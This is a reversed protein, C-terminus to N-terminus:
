RKAHRPASRARNSKASAAGAGAPSVRGTVNLCRGANTLSLKFPLSCGAASLTIKYSPSSHQSFSIITNGGDVPLISSLKADDAANGSEALGVPGIGPGTSNRSAVSNRSETDELNVKSRCLTSFIANHRTVRDRESLILYTRCKARHRKKM